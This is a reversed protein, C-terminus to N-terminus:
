AFRPVAPPAGKFAGWDMERFDTRYTRSLPGHPSAFIEVTTKARVLPSAYFSDIPESELRRAVARAQERGRANLEGDSGSGQIVGRRNHETEGHRVFSYVTPTPTTQPIPRPAM